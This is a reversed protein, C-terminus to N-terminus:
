ATGKELEYWRGAEDVLQEERARTTNCERVDHKSDICCPIRPEVHITLETPNTENMLTMDYAGGHGDKHGEFTYVELFAQSAKCLAQFADEDNHIIGPFSITLKDSDGTEIEIDWMELNKVEKKFCQITAEFAEKVMLPLNVFDETEHGLLKKIANRSEMKRTKIIMLAEKRLKDINTLADAAVRACREATSRELFEITDTIVEDIEGM